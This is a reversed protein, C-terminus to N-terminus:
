FTGANLLDIAHFFRPPLSSQKLNKLSLMYYYHRKDKECIGHAETERYKSSTRLHM